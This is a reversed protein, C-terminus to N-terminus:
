VSSCPMEQQKFSSTSCDQCKGIHSQSYENDCSSCRQNDWSSNSEPSYRFPRMPQGHFGNPCNHSQLLCRGEPSEYLSRCFKAEKSNGQHMYSGGQCRAGPSINLMRYGDKSGCFNLFVFLGFICLTLATAGLVTKWTHSFGTENCWLSIAYGYAIVFIFAFIFFIIEKTRTM